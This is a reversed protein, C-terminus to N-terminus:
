IIQKRPKLIMPLYIVTMCLSLIGIVMLLFSLSIVNKNSLNLITGTYLLSSILSFLLIMRNKNYKGYYMEFYAQFCWMLTFMLIMIFASNIKVEKIIGIFNIGITFIIAALTAIAIFFSYIWFVRWNIGPSTDMYVKKAYFASVSAHVIQIIMSIRFIYSIQYMDDPSMYNFAYIKALNNIYSILTLNIIIPWSYALSTKIFKILNIFKLKKLNNLSLICSFLLILQPVFLLVLAINPHKGCFLFVLVISIFNVPTTFLFILSPKDILRFYISYYGTYFLYLTRVCIYGALLVLVTNYFSIVLGTLFSLLLLCYTIILFYNKTEIIFEDKNNSQRYGYFLYNRLGLDVVVSLIASISFIYEIDNYIKQDKTLFLVVLPLSFIILKDLYNFFTFRLLVSKSFILSKVKNIM